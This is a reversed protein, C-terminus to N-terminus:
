VQAPVRQALRQIVFVVRLDGRARAQGEVRVLHEHVDLVGVDPDVGGLLSTIFFVKKPRSPRRRFFM